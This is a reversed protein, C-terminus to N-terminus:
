KSGYLEVLIQGATYVGTDGEGDVIYLFQDVAPLASFPITGGQTASFPAGAAALTTNNTLGSMAADETGTSEDGSHIEIDDPGVTPVELCTLSASFVTGCKAVTYQGIHCNAASAAGIIDGDAGGALGTLDVFISTKIVGNGLSEQWSKYVTGTGSTIGTGASLGSGGTTIEVNTISSSLYISNADDAVVCFQEKGFAIAESIAKMVAKETGTDITLDVETILGDTGDVDAFKLSISTDDTQDMGLLKGAPLVASNHSEADFFLYKAAM